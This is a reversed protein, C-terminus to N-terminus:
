DYQLWLVICLQGYVSSSVILVICNIGFFIEPLRALLMTSLGDISFDAELPPLENRVLIRLRTPRPRESLVVFIWDSNDEEAELQACSVILLGFIIGDMLDDDVDDV